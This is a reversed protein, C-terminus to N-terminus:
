KFILVLTESGGLMKKQSSACVATKRNQYDIKVIFQYARVRHKVKNLDLEKSQASKKQM